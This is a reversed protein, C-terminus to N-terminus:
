LIEIDMLVNYLKIDIYNKWKTALNQVRLQKESKYRKSAEEVTDYTGLSVTKNNITIQSEFRGDTERVGTPLNSDRKINMKTLLTNLEGPVFCCADPGYVKNGKVLLDKDLQFKKHKTSDFNINFWKAFNQFNHWDEHVTCDIYCNSEGSYCRRMMDQWTQYVKSQAKYIGDGFFGIGYITKHFPNRVIGKLFADYSTRKKFGNKFQVIVHESKIYEILTINYGENTTSVLGVRSLKEQETLIRGM